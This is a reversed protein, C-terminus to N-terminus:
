GRHSFVANWRVQDPASLRPASRGSCWMGQRRMSPPNPAPSKGTREGNSPSDEKTEKGGSFSISLNLPYDRRIRPGVSLLYRFVRSHRSRVRFGVVTAPGVRRTAGSGLAFSINRRGPPFRPTVAWPPRSRPLQAATTSVPRRRAVTRRGEAENRDRSWAGKTRAHTRANRRSRLFSSSSSTRRSTRHGSPFSVMRSPFSTILGEFLRPRSM